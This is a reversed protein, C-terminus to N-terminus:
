GARPRWALRIALAAGVGLADFALDRWDGHRGFGLGAQLLEIAGGLALTFAPIAWRRRPSLILGLGTLLFWALAHELKDSTGPDPLRDPPALCTILVVGTAIAFTALRLPRPLRDLRM